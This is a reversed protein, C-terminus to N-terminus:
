IEGIYTSYSLKFAYTHIYLFFMNSISKSKLPSMHDSKKLYTTMDFNSIRQIISSSSRGLRKDNPNKAMCFFYMWVYKKSDFTPRM